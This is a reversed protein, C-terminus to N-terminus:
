DETALKKRLGKVWGIQFEPEVTSALKLAKRYYPRAWEVQGM